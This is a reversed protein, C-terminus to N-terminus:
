EYYSRNYGCPPFTEGGGGSRLKSHDPSYMNVKTHPTERLASFGQSFRFGDIVELIYRYWLLSVIRWIGALFKKKMVHGPPGTTSHQILLRFTGPELGGSFVDNVEWNKNERVRERGGGGRQVCYFESIFNCMQAVSEVGDIEKRWPWM